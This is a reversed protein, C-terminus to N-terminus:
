YPSVIIENLEKKIDIPEFHTIGNVEIERIKSEAFFHVLSSKGVGSMGM